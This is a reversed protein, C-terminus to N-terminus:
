NKENDFEILKEAIEKEIYYNCPGSVMGFQGLPNVELFYMDNNENYIIDLSGTELNAEKMFRKIRNIENNKLTFPVNRNPLEDDYQRFDIKTKNNNSSFIAMPYCKGKDFFIRLEYKKQIEKQFLTPFFFNPVNKKIHEETFKETFTGVLKKSKKDYFSEVESIPKIIISENKKIFNLLEVKNNTIITEPIKFGNKKALILQESKSLYDQFYSHRNYWKNKEFCSFFYQTIGYFERRLYSHIKKNHNLRYDSNFWRRYWIVNVNEKKFDKFVYSHDNDSLSININDEILEVGNVRKVDGGLHLVWDYVLDTTYEWERQSFILIM